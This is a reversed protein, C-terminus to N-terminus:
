IQFSSNITKIALRLLFHIFLVFTNILACSVLLPTENKILGYLGSIKCRLKIRMWKYNNMDYERRKGRTTLMFVCTKCKIKAGGSRRKYNLVSLLYIHIQKNINLFYMELSRPLAYSFSFFVMMYYLDFHKTDVLKM